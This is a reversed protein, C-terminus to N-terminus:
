SRDDKRCLLSSLADFGAKEGCMEPIEEWSPWIVWFQSHGRLFEILLNM